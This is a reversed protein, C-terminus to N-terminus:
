SFEGSRIIGGPGGYRGSWGFFVKLAVPKSPNILGNKQIKHPIKCVFEGFGVADFPGLWFKRTSPKVLKMEVLVQMLGSNIDLFTLAKAWFTCLPFTPPRSHGTQPLRHITWRLEKPAPARRFTEAACTGVRSWTHLAGCVPRHGSWRACQSFTEFPAVWWSHVIAGEYDITQWLLKGVVVLFDQSSVLCESFRCM